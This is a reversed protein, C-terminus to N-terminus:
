KDIDDDRKLFKCVVDGPDKCGYPALHGLKLETFHSCLHQGRWHGEINRFSDREKMVPKHSLKQSFTSLGRLIVLGKGPTSNSLKM